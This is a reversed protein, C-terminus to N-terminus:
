KKDLDKNDILITTEFLPDCGNYIHEGFIRMLYWLQWTSYGNKDEKIRLHKIQQPQCRLAKLYNDYVCKGHKTLKVKVNDNINFKKLMLRGRMRKTQM